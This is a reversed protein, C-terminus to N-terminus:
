NKAFPFGLYEMLAKTKDSQSNTVLTIELGRVKDVQSYDVEPFVIQEAIGLSYNGSDDFSQNSIGRFDRIRPLVIKVLKEIFDYMKKGRLTVKLGIPEGKRLKFTSIDKKALATLPKQGTIASLQGAALELVKKNSLAEGLSINVVVKHMRPVSMINKIGLKQKLEKKGEKQYKDYFESM